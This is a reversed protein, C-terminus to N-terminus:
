TATCGTTILTRHSIQDRSYGVQLHMTRDTTGWCKGPCSGSWLWALVLGSGSRFRVLGSRFRIPIPDSGSRVCIPLPDSASRFMSRVHIPVPDSASRSRIPLPDSYISRVHIPVPDSASRFPIPSHIPCPDSCSRFCIPLPDSTSRFMDSGSRFHIPFM